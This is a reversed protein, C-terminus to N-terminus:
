VGENRNDANSGKLLSNQKKKVGEFIKQQEGINIASTIDSNQHYTPAPGGRAEYGLAEARCAVTQWDTPIEGFSVNEWTTSREPSEEM